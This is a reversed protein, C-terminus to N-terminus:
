PTRKPLKEFRTRLTEDELRRSIETARERASEAEEGRLIRALMALAMARMRVHGGDGAHTAAQRAHAAADEHHGQKWLAYALGNARRCLAFPPASATPIQRYMAERAMGDVKGGDKTGLSYAQQDIYRAFLCAREERDAVGQLLPPLRTLLVPVREPANRSAIFALALTAEARAEHPAAALDKEARALEAEAETFDNRRLLITTRALALWVRDERRETTPPHDWLRVLDECVSVPLDTFRSHYAGMWRLRAKVNAPLGFLAVLRAGWKGGSQQGRTRLRRLAREVTNVDEEFRRSAALKEAVATLTGERAVLDALLDGWTFGAFFGDM